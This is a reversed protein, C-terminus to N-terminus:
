RANTGDQHREHEEEREQAYDAYIIGKLDRVIEAMSLISHHMATLKGDIMLLYKRKM